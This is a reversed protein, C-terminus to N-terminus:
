FGDPKLEEWDLGVEAFIKAICDQCVQNFGDSDYWALDRTHKECEWCIGGSPMDIIGFHLLADAM